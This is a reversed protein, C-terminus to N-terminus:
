NTWLARKVKREIEECVHVLSEDSDPWEEDVQKCWKKERAMATLFIRQEADTFPKDDAPPLQMMARELIQQSIEDNWIYAKKITKLVDSLFVKQM